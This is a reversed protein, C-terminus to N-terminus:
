WGDPYAEADEEEALEGEGEEPDIIKAMFSKTIGVTAMKGKPRLNRWARPAWSEVSGTDTGDSESFWPDKRAVAATPRIRRDKQLLKAILETFSTWEQPMLHLPAVRERTAQFIEPVSECGEHFIGGPTFRDRPGDTPIKDCVMQLMVVGMSFLDGRPFWMLTELTEPPVYGPTGHPCGDDEKAMCVTVGLDIIVIEPESYDTTKVMINPEKIDCHIMAQEHMFAIGELAQRFVKRWFDENVDVLQDNARAKLTTLDGGLYVDGVLYYFDADQFMERANAIRECQLLKLAEFEHVLDEVSSASMQAKTFCKLCVEEGHRNTALKAVGYSGHGLEKFVEYGASELPIVPVDSASTAAYGLRKRYELLHFKVLKYAQNISLTGSGDFDFREFDVQLSQFADLPVDIRAALLDSLQQLGVINLGTEKQGETAAQNFCAIVHTKLAKRNRLLQTIHSIQWQDDKVEQQPAALVSALTPEPYASPAAYAPPAAAYAAPAAARYASPQIVRPPSAVLAPSASNAAQANLVRAV